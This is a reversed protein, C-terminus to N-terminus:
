KIGILCIPKGEGNKYKSIAEELSNYRSNEAYDNHVVYKEGDAENERTVSMTHIESNLDSKNNYTTVIYTKYRNSVEKINESYIQKGAIMKTSYGNKDFYLKIAEPSTGFEGFATIGDKEFRELLDPFDEPSKDGTLDQLANYAAIVECANDKALLRGYYMNDIQDQNEIYKSKNTYNDKNEKWDKENNKKHENVTKDSVGLISLFSLLGLITYDSVNEPVYKMFWEKWDTDSQTIKEKGAAGIIKLIDRMIQEFEYLSLGLEKALEKIKDWGKSWDIKEQKEKGKEREEGKGEQDKMQQIVRSETKKYEEATLQLTECLRECSKKENELEQIIHLLLVEMEKSGIVKQLKSNVYRVKELYQDINQSLQRFSQAENKIKGWLVEIEAM